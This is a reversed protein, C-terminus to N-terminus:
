SPKGNIVRARVEPGHTMSLPVKVPLNVFLHLATLYSAWPWVLPLAPLPLLTETVVGPEWPGAQRGLARGAGAAEAPLAAAPVPTRVFDCCQTSLKLM